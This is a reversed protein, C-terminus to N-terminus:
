KDAEATALYQERTKRRLPKGVASKPIPASTISVAKPVKYKALRSSAFAIIEEATVHADDRPM